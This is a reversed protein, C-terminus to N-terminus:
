VTYGDVGDEDLFAWSATMDGKERGRLPIPNAQIRKM